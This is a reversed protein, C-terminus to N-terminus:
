SASEDQFASRTTLLWNKWKSKDEVTKWEAGAAKMLKLDRAAKLLELAIKLSGTCTADNCARKPGEKSKKVRKIAKKSFGFRWCRRSKKAAKAM